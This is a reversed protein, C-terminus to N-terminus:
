TMGEIKLSVTEVSVDITAEEPSPAESPGGCAVAGIAVSAVLISILTPRQTRKMAVDERLRTTAVDLFRWGEVTM